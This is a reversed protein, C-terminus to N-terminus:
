RYYLPSIVSRIAMSIAAIAPVTHSLFARHFFGPASPLEGSILQGGATQVYQDAATEQWPPVTGYVIQLRFSGAVPRCVETPGAMVAYEHQRLLICIYDSLKLMYQRLDATQRYGNVQGGGQGALNEPWVAFDAM